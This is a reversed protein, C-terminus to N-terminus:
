RVQRRRRLGLMAVLGSCMLAWTGPEPVSVLAEGQLTDNGCIMNWQLALRDFVGLSSVDMSYLLYGGTGTHSTDVSAAGVYTGGNILTAQGTRYTWGSHTSGFAQDTTVINGRTIAYLGGTSTDVAYNWNTGTNAFTDCAYFQVAGCGATTYPHWGTTSILLDGYVTDLIPGSSNTYNTNIRVTLIHGTLTVDMGQIDFVSAGILDTGTAPNAVQGGGYNGPTGGWYSDAISVTEARLPACALLAGVMFGTRFLTKGLISLM